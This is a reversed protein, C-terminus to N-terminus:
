HSHSHKERLKKRLLNKYQTSLNKRGSGSQGFLDKGAEFPSPSKEFQELYNKLSEKIIESKSRLMKKCASALKKELSPDLRVTIM